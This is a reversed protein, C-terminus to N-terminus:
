RGQSKEAEFPNANVERGQGASSPAPNLKSMGTLKKRFEATM